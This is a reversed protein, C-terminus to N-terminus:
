NEPDNDLDGLGLAKINENLEQIGTDINKMNTNMEKLLEHLEFLAALRGQADEVVGTGPIGIKIPGSQGTVTEFLWKGFNDTPPVIEIESM